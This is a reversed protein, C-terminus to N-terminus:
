RFRLKDRSSVPEFGPVIKAALVAVSSLREKGRSCAPGDSSSRSQSLSPYSHIRVVSPTFGAFKKIIDKWEEVENGEAIYMAAATLM